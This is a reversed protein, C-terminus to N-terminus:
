YVLMKQKIDTKSHSTLTKIIISGTKTKALDVINLSNTSPRNPLSPTSSHSSSVSATPSETSPSSSSSSSAQNMLGLEILRSGLMEYLHEKYINSSDGDVLQGSSGEQIDKKEGSKRDEITSALFHLLLKVSKISATSVNSLIGFFLEFLITPRSYM